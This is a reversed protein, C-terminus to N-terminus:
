LANHPHGDNGLSTHEDQLIAAPRLTIDAAFYLHSGYQKIACFCALLSDLGECDVPGKKAASERLRDVFRVFDDGTISMGM